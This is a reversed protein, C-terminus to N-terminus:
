WDSFVLVMPALSVLCWHLKLANWFVEDQRSAKCAQGAGGDERETSPTKEENLTPGLDQAYSGICCAKQYQSAGM